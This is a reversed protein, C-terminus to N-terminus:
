YIIFKREQDLDEWELTRGEDNELNYDEIEDRLKNLLSIIEAKTITEDREVDDIIEELLQQIRDM